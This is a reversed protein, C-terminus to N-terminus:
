VLRVSLFLVGVGTILSSFSWSIHLTSPHWLLRSLNVSYIWQCPSKFFTFVVLVCLHSHNIRRPPNFPLPRLYLQWKFGAVVPYTYIGWQCNYKKFLSYFTKCKPLSFYSCGGEGLAFLNRKKSHCILACVVMEGRGAVNRDRRRWGLEARWQLSPRAMNKWDMIGRAARSNVLEALFGLFSTHVTFRSGPM